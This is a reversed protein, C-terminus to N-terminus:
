AAEEDQDGRCADAIANCVARLERDLMQVVRVEDTEHALAAGIRDPIALLMQAAIAALNEAKLEVERRSVLDGAREATVMQAQKAKERQEMTRARNWDMSDIDQMSAEAEAAFEAELWPRVVGWDFRHSQGNRGQYALPLPNTERRIWYLITNRSYELGWEESIREVLEMTTLRKEDM